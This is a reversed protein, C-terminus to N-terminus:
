SEPENGVDNLLEAGSSFFSDIYSSPDMESRRFLSFVEVDESPTEYILYSQAFELYESGYKAAYRVAEKEAHEIAARASAARLLIIREEYM